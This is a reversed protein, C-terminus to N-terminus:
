GIKVITIIEYLVASFSFEVMICGTQILTEAQISENAEFCIGAYFFLM